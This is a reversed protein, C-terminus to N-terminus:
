CLYDHLSEGLNVDSFHYTYATFTKTGLVRRIQSLKYTSELRSLAQAAEDEKINEYKIQNTDISLGIMKQPNYM